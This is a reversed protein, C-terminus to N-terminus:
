RTITELMKKFICKGYFVKCTNQQLKTREFRGTALNLVKMYSENGYTSINNGYTSINNGYTSINYCFGLSM